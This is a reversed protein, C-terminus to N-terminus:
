MRSVYGGHSQGAAAAFGNVPLWCSMRASLFVPLCVSFFVSFCGSFFVYCDSTEALPPVLYGLKAFALILDCFRKQYQVQSRRISDDTAYAELQVVSTDYSRWDEALYHGLSGVHVDCGGAECATFVKLAEAMRGVLLQMPKEVDADLRAVLVPSLQKEFWDSISLVSKSTGTLTSVTTKALTVLESVSSVSTKEAIVLSRFDM